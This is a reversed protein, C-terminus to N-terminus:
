MFNGVLRSMQKVIGFDADQSGFQAFHQMFSKYNSDMRKRELMDNDLQNMLTQDAKVPEMGGENDLYRKLTPDAEVKSPTKSKVPKLNTPLPPIFREETKVEASPKPTVKVKIKKPNNRIYGVSSGVGGGVASGALGYGLIKAARDLSGTKAREEETDFAGTGKAIGLGTGIASGIKGARLTSGIRTAESGIASSIPFPAFDAFHQM